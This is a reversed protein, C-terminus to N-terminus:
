RSSPGPKAPTLYADRIATMIAAQMAAKPDDAHGSIPIVVAVPKGGSSLNTVLNAATAKIDNGLSERAAALELHDLILKLQGDVAGDKVALDVFADVKGSTAQLGTPGALFGYLERLELQRVSGKALLGEGKGFPDTTLDLALKGSQQLTGTLHLKTPQRDGLKPRTVLPAIAVVAGHIWIESSKVPVETETRDVVLVEAERVDLRDLRLPPLALLRRRLSAMM